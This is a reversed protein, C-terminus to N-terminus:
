TYGVKELKEFVAEITTVQCLWKYKSLESPSIFPKLVREAKGYYSFADEEKGLKFLAVAKNYYFLSIEVSRYWKDSDPEPFRYNELIKIGIEFCQQAEERRDLKGLALGRSGLMGVLTGIELDEFVGMLKNQVFVDLLLCFSQDISQQPKENEKEVITGLGSEFLRLQFAEIYLGLAKNYYELKEERDGTRCSLLVECALDFIERSTKKGTTKEESPTMERKGSM